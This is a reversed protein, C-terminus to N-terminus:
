LPIGTWLILRQLLGGVLFALPFIFAIMALTVRWGHEKMIMFVNAICPVFLTIVVISTLIQLPDLIADAGTAADLLYVAGYDRRLFGILFAATTEPPLGLWGTVLPTALSELRGLLALKDFLFLVATGLVFLPIVEKLYWVIRAGTKQLVNGLLPRRMPPVEMLFDAPSGPISRSALHGVGLLVLVIVGVWILAAYFSLRSLMALLVGLQASCPIVLALLLTTILRQKRTELIRTTMTAMTDCGLGLVLPLVAKGNLGIVRFLRNVVIALRPLYGSDELVSFLLFFTGVIPLIIAFGYSLAMTVAGYPGVLFDHLWRLVQRGLDLEGTVTYAPQLVRRETGVSLPVSDRPTLPLELQWDVSEVDHEHPFPLVADAGQIALPSIWQGFVVTELADVLTGAGLLGVFWFAAYLIVAFFALGKVPHSAWAGLRRGFDSTERAPARFCRALLQDVYRQRVEWLMQSLDKGARRQTESRVREVRRIEDPSLHDRLWGALTEDGQLILLALARPAIGTEGPLLDVITELAREVLAPYRVQLKVTHPNEAHMALQRMGQRRTAVTAVVPCGLAQALKQTDIRIGRVRAEDMMNLALIMKRGAEALELTLHLTRGLNKADGVQIVAAEPHASLIDRTVREDDSMPLLSNAGPTDLVSVRRGTVADRGRTVEVTTGPYNSVTVYRQTLAGFIASKGVNPQGVLLLEPEGAGAPPPVADKLTEDVRSPDLPPEM